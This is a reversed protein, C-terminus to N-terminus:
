FYRPSKMRTELKRPFTYDIMIEHGSFSSLATLSHTYSYGIVLAPNINWQMMGIIADRKRLTNDLNQSTVINAGFRYTAGIWFTNRILFHSTLDINTLSRFDDRILFSPKFKVDTGLDFVYGGTLYYHRYQSIVLNYDNFLLNGLLDNVSFGVYFKQAYLFLGFKPDFKLSNVKNLPVVPDMDNESILKTGDLTFYSIGAALGMSLNLKDNIKLIYSYNAWLGQRTEAGIKDNVIHLGLGMYQLPSGEISISQTVPACDLGVWPSSYIFNASTWGRTGTYAPNISMPNFIYQNSIYNQQAISILTIGLFNVILILNKM